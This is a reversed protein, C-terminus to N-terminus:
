TQMTNALKLLEDESPPEVIANQQRLDKVWKNHNEIVEEDEIRGQDAYFRCEPICSINTCGYGDVPNLDQMYCSLDQFFWNQKEAQYRQEPSERLDRKLYFDLEEQTIRHDIDKENLLPNYGLVRWEEARIQRYYTFRSPQSGRALYYEDDYEHEQGQDDIYSDTNNDYANINSSFNDLKKFLGILYRDIKM